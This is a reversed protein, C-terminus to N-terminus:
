WRSSQGELSSTEGEEIENLFFIQTFRITKSEDKISQFAISVSQRTKTSHFMMESNEFLIFRM